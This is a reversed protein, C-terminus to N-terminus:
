ASAFINKSGLLVITAPVAISAVRLRKLLNRRAQDPIPSASGPSDQVEICPKKDANAM